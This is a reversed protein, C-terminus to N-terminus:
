IRELKKMKVLHYSFCYAHKTERIRRGEKEEEEEKKGEKKMEEEKRDRETKRWTDVWYKYVWGYM